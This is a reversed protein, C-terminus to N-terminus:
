AQEFELDVSILVDSGRSETNHGSEALYNALTEELRNVMRASDRIVDSLSASYEGAALVIQDSPREIKQGVPQVFPQSFEPLTGPLIVSSRARKNDDGLPTIWSLIGLATGNRAIVYDARQALHDAVNRLDRIPQTREFFTTEGPQVPAFKLGPMLKLLSRLRDIGDVVAWADLFPHTFSGGEQQYRADVAIEALSEALRVYAYHSLESAHRIGDLFLAQKKNLLIPLRRLLSDESIM